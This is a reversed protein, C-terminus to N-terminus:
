PDVREFTIKIKEGEKIRPQEEGIYIAEYSGTLLM